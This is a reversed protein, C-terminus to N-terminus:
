EAEDDEDASDEVLKGDIIHNYVKKCVFFHFCGIIICVSVEICEDEARMFAFCKGWAKLNLIPGGIRLESVFQRTTTNYVMIAQQDSDFVAVCDGNVALFKPNLCRLQIVPKGEYTVMTVENSNFGLVIFETTLAISQLDSCYFKCALNGQDFLYVDEKSKLVLHDGQAAAMTANEIPLNLNLKEGSPLVIAEIGQDTPIYMLSDDSSCSWPPFFEGCSIATVFEQNNYM